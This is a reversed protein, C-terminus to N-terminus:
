CSSGAEGPNLELWSLFPSVFAFCTSNQGPSLHICSSTSHSSHFATMSLSSLHSTASLCVQGELVSFWGPFGMGLSESLLMQSDSLLMGWDTSLLLSKGAVVRDGLDARSGGSSGLDQPPLTRVRM